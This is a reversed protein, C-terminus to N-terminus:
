EYVLHKWITKATYQLYWPYTNDIDVIYLAEGHPSRLNDYQSLVEQTNLETHAFSRLKIDFDERSGLSSFHWGGNKILPLDKWSKGDHRHGDTRIQQLDNQMAYVGPMVVSGSPWKQNAFLNLYYYYLNQVYRGFRKLMIQNPSPIEDIDSMIIIDDSKYDVRLERRHWNELDWGKLNPAKLPFYDVPFQHLLREPFCFEKPEGAHTRDLEVVVFRDVVECLINLRIEALATERFFPFSDIIM